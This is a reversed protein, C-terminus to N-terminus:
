KIEFQVRSGNHKRECVGYLTKDSDCDGDTWQGSLGAGLRMSVCRLDSPSGSAWNTFTPTRQDGSRWEYRHNTM